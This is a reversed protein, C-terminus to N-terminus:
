LHAIEVKCYLTNFNVSLYVILVSQVTLLRQGMSAFPVSPVCLRILQGESEFNNMAPLKEGLVKELESIM